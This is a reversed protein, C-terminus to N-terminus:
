QFLLKGNLCYYYAEYKYDIVKHMLLYDDSLQVGVFSGEIFANSVLGDTDFIVIQIGKRNESIKQGKWSCKILAVITDGNHFVTSVSEPTFETGDPAKITEVCIPEYCFSGDEQLVTFYIKSKNGSDTSTFMVPAYGNQFENLNITDEYEDLDIVTEGTRMDEYSNFFGIKWWDSNYKTPVVSYFDSGDTHFVGTSLDWYCEIEERDSLYIYGNYYKYYEMYNLEEAYDVVIEGDLNAIATMDTSGAYNTVTKVLLIYGAQVLYESNGLEIRDAGLDEASKLNGKKDCIFYDYDRLVAKGNIFGTIPTYRGALEFVIRGKENICYTTNSYTSGIDGELTVFALGESFPYGYEIYTDAPIGETKNFVDEMVFSDNSDSENESYQTEDWPFKNSSDEENKQKNSAKLDLDACGASTMLILVAMAFALVNKM